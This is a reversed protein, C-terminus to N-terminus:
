DESPPQENKMWTFGGDDRQLTWMRDLAKRTTPHLKGTTAADNSALVAAVMVTEAVGIKGPVERPHEAVQELAARIQEHAKGRRSVVPRVVLYAYNSHCAFCKRENQWSLAVTDLFGVAASSSFKARLPEDPRNPSPSVVTELTLWRDAIQREMVARDATEQLFRIDKLTLIPPLFTNGVVSERFLMEYFVCAALYEGALGAHHGDMALVTKGNEEHWRWGVHLSHTQDPLAPRRANSFDFATDPRYGWKPDTDALHFADGIPIIQTGLEAAITKYPAPSDRTCRRRTPQNAPGRRSTPSARITM